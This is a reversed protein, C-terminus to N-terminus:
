EKPLQISSQIDDKTEKKTPARTKFMYHVIGTATCICLRIGIQDLHLQVLLNLTVVIVLQWVYPTALLLCDIDPVFEFM